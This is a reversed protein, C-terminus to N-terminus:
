HPVALGHTNRSDSLLVLGVEQRGQRIGSNQQSPSM